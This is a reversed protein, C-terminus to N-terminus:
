KGENEALYTVNSFVMDKAFPISHCGSCFADKGAKAKYGAAWNWNDAPLESEDSVKLSVTVDAGKGSDYAAKDNYQEKVIVTGVPYEYPGDGTITERGIENVYVLRYGSPGKHVEGLGLSAGTSPTDSVTSWSRYEAWREDADGFRSTISACGALLISAAAAIVFPKILIRKM